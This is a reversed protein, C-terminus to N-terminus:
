RLAKRNEAGPNAGTGDSNDKHDATTETFAPESEKGALNRVDAVFRYGHKRVTEVYKVDGRKEGLVARIAHIAKELNNDEVITDPWVHEILEDKSVLTGARRVLLALTQFAKEPLIDIRGGDLRELVREAIDLRFDGFEYLEQKRMSM